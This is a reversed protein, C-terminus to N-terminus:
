LRQGAEHMVHFMEVQKMRSGELSEPRGGVDLCLVWCATLVTDSLTDEMLSDRQWWDYDSESDTSTLRSRTLDVEEIWCLQLGRGQELGHDAEKVRYIPLMSFVPAYLGAAM